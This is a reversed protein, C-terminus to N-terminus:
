GEVMVFKSMAVEEQTKISTINKFEIESLVDKVKDDTFTPDRKYWAQAEFYKQLKPDKFVRGHKAFIENRLVRLDELYMGYFFEEPLVETTIKERMKAEYGDILKVNAEEVANLKVKKQDKLPKYWDQWEFAQRYAAVTFKKGRRAFFENKMLRLENFSVGKLQEEKLLVNQFKDMDGFSVEVVRNENRKAIFKELNKREIASLMTPSYNPNRKYWYREDFYKQLWEQDPFTKGHIAEFEAILVSWDAGSPAYIKDDPIEKKIWYRLDGPEVNYHREAEALRILDLNDREMKTLMSNKFNPNPQYWSQKELYNQISKEKFIRGRKGFVVGRLLALENVPEFDDTEYKLKALEAKTVLKKTFDFNHYKKVNDQAFLVSAFALLIGLLLIKRPM